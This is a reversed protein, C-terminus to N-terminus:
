LAGKGAAVIDGMYENVSWEGLGDPGINKYNYVFSFKGENTVAVWEIENRLEYHQGWTKEVETWEVIDFFKDRIKAGISEPYHGRMRYFDSRGVFFNTGDAEVISWPAACGIGRRVNVRYIPATAKGTAGWTEISGRRYIVLGGGVKGLGTIYDETGQLEAAGATLGVLDEFDTPDGNKSWAIGVPNRTDGYYAIILRDVYEICYYAKQAVDPTAEITTAYTDAAGDWYQVITNGNTFVLKDDIICWSWRQNTPMTYVHRIYCTKDSAFDSATGPYDADLTITKNTNSSSAITSWTATGTGNAKATEKDTFTLVETDAFTGKVTTLIITGVADDDDWAGTTPDPMVKIKGTAGSTGGTVTDDVDPTDGGSANSGITYALVRHPEETATFDDALIFYDGDEVLDTEPAGASLTIVNDEIKDVTAYSTIDTKYSWTEGSEVERQILDSATLYMTKQTGGKLQYLIVNYPAHAPLTRDATNYGWRKKWSKQEIRGNKSGWSAFPFPLHLSPSETSLAHEVPYIMYKLYPM